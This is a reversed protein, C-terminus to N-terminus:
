SRSRRASRPSRAAPSARRTAALSTSTAVRLSRPDDGALRRRRRPLGAPRADRLAALWRARSPRGRGGARCATRRSCCRSASCTTAAPRHWRRTSRRPCTPSSCRDSPSRARGALEHGRGDRRRHARDDDLRSRTTASGSPPATPWRGTAVARRRRRRRDQVRLRGPPRRGRWRECSRGPAPRRTGCGTSSPGAPIAPPCSSRAGQDRHRRRADVGRVREGECRIAAVRRAPGSWAM